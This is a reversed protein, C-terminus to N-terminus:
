TVSATFGCCEFLQVRPGTTSEIRVRDLDASADAFAAIVAVGGYGGRIVDGNPAFHGDQLALGFFHSQLIRNHGTRVGEGIYIGVQNDFLVNHTIVTDPGGGAFGASQFENFFDEGCGLGPSGCANGSIVNHTVTGQQAGRVMEIGATAVGLVKGPGAITSHSLVLSSGENIVVIGVVQFDDIVSRTINATGNTEAIADGLRVGHGSRFCDAIPTDHIHAVRADVLDLHADGWVFIGDRLPGADCTGAGPGSVTLRAISVRAGGHVDVIASDGLAGPVLTGPARITTSGAGAGVISIDKDVTVQEVYTGARVVVRDGDSAADVAAQITPYATPVVLATVASAPTSHVVPLGLGAIVALVGLLTRRKAM